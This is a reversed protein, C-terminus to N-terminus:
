NWRNRVVKQWEWVGAQQQTEKAPCCGVREGKGAHADTQGDHSRCHAQTKQEQLMGAGLGADKKRSEADGGGQEKSEAAALRMLQTKNSTKALLDILLQNARLRGRICV